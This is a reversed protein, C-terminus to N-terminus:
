SILARSRVLRVVQEEISNCVLATEIETRNGFPIRHLSVIRSIRFINSFIDTYDKVMQLSIDKFMKTLEEAIPEDIPQKKLLKIQDTNNQGRKSLYENKTLYETESLSNVYM